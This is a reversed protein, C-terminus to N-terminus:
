ISIQEFEVNRAAALPDPLVGATNANRLIWDEAAARDVLTWLRIKRQHAMPRTSKIDGAAKIIGQKIFPVPVVGLWRKDLGPPMAIRSRVAEINTQGHAILMTMFVRRAQAVFSANHSESKRRASRLRNGQNKIQASLPIM